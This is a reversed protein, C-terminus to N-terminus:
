DNYVVLRWTTDGTTEITLPADPILQFQVGGSRLCQNTVQYSGSSVTASAPGFCVLHADGSGPQNPTLPITRTSTDGDTADRSASFLVRHGPSFALEAAVLQDVSPLEYLRGALPM